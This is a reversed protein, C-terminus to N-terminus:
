PWTESPFKYKVRLYPKQLVKMYDKTHKLLEYAQVEVKKNTGKILLHNFNM